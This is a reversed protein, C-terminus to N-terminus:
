ALEDKETSETKHLFGNTFRLFGILNSVALNPNEPITTMSIPHYQSRTWNYKPISDPAAILSLTATFAEPEFDDLVDVYEGNHSSIKISLLDHTGTGLLNALSVAHIYGFSIINRTVECHYKYDVM